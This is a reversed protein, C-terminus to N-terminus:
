MFSTIKMVRQAFWLTNFVVVLQESINKAEPPFIFRKVSLCYSAPGQEVAQGETRFDVM